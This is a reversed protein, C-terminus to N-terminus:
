TVCLSTRDEVQVIQTITGDPPAAGVPTYGNYIGGVGFVSNWCLLFLVKLSKKNIGYKKKEMTFFFFKM